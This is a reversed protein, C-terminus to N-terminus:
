HNDKAQTRHIEDNGRTYEVTYKGAGDHHITFGYEIAWAMYDDVENLLRYLGREIEAKTITPKSM